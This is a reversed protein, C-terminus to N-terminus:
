SRWWFLTSLIYNNHINLRGDLFGVSCSLETTSVIKSFYWINWMLQNLVCLHWFLLYFYLDRFVSLISHDGIELVVDSKLLNGTKTRKDKQYFCCASLASSVISVPFFQLRRLFLQGLDVRETVTEWPSAQSRVRSMTTVSWSSVAEDTCPRSLGINIQMVCPAYLRQM